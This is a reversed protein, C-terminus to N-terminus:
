CGMSDSVVYTINAMNKSNGLSGAKELVDANDSALLPVLYRLVGTKL